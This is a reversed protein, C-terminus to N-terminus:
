QAAPAAPFVTHSDASTPAAPAPTQLFPISFPLGSCGALLLMVLTFFLSKKM